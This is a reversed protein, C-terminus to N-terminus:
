IRFVAVNAANKKYDICVVGRSYTGNTPLEYDKTRGAPVKGEFTARLVHLYELFTLVKEKNGIPTYGV